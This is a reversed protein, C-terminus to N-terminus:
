MLLGGLDVFTCLGGMDAVGGGVLVGDFYVTGGCAAVAQCGL